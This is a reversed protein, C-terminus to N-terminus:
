VTLSFTPKWSTHMCTNLGGDFSSSTNSIKKTRRVLGPDAPVLELHRITKTMLITKSLLNRQSNELKQDELTQGREVQPFLSECSM